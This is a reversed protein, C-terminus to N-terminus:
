GMDFSDIYYSPYIWVCLYHVFCKDVRNKTATVSCVVASGADSGSGSVSNSGGLEILSNGSFSSSLPTYRGPLYMGGGGERRQVEDLGLPLSEM